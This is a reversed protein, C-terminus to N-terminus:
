LRMKNGLLAPEFQGGEDRVASPSVARNPDAVQWQANKHEDRSILSAHSCYSANKDHHM